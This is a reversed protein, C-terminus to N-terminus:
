CEKDSKSLVWGKNDILEYIKLRLYQRSTGTRGEWPYDWGQPQGNKNIVLKPMHVKPGFSPPGPLQRLGLDSSLLNGEPISTNQFRLHGLSGSRLHNRASSPLLFRLSTPLLCLFHSFSATPCM